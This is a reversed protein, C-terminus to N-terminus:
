GLSLSTYMYKNGREHLPFNYMNRQPKENM